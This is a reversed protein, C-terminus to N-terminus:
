LGQRQMQCFNKGDASPELLVGGGGTRGNEADQVAKEYGPEIREQFFAFQEKPTLEMHETGLLVHMQEDPYMRVEGTENDVEVIWMGIRGTQLVEKLWDAKYLQNELGDRNDM